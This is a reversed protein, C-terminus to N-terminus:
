LTLRLYILLLFVNDKMISNTIHSSMCNGSPSGMENRLKDVKDAFHDNFHNAIDEAKTLFIENVETFSPYNTNARVMIQNLTKWLKNGDYKSKLRVKIIHKRRNLQTDQLREIGSLM